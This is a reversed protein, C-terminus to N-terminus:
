CCLYMFRIPGGETGGPIGSVRKFHDKGNCHFCITDPTPTSVKVLKPANNSGAQAKGKDKANGKEKKRGKMVKKNHEILTDATSLMSHLENLPKIAGTMNYNMIFMSYSPPLSHLILNTSLQLSLTPGLKRLQEM